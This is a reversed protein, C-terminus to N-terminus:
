DELMDKDGHLLLYDKIKKVLREPMKSLKGKGTIREIDEKLNSYSIDQLSIKIIHKAGTGLYEAGVSIEIEETIGPRQSIFVYDVKEM